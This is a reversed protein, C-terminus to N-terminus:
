QATAEHPCMRNPFPILSFKSPLSSELMHRMQHTTFLLFYNGLKLPKDKPNYVAKLCIDSEPCYLISKVLKTVWQGFKPYFYCIYLVIQQPTEREVSWNTYKKLPAKVNVVMRLTKSAKENYLTFLLFLQWDAPLQM